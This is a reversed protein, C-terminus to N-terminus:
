TKRYHFTLAGKDIEEFELLEFSVNLKPHKFYFRILNAVEEPVQLYLNLHTSRKNLVNEMLSNATGTAGNDNVM